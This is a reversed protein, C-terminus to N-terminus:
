KVKKIREILEFVKSKSIGSVDNLESAGKFEEDVLKSKLVDFSICKEKMAKTLLNHPDGKDLSKINKNSSSENNAGLEEQSVIAIRLFSRVCRVFARNEACAALFAQGFGSTNNPSADGIASFVVEEGETEYNPKWTIKCTAVVYDASPCVVDYAVSTYGRIQALEKIGALLIILQYDKLKTVDTESTKDKNPVLHETKIMKRWDILGDKNFIYDTDPLLGDKDRKITKIKSM